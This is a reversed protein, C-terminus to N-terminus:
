STKSVWVSWVTTDVKRAIAYGEQGISISGPVGTVCNIMTDGGAIALTVSTSDRNNFHLEVGREHPVDANAAITWTAVGGSSRYIFSKEDDLVTTYSGNQINRFRKITRRGNHVDNLRGNFSDNLGTIYTSSYEPVIIECDTINDESGATLTYWPVLDGGNYNPGFKSWKAGQIRIRSTAGVNASLINAEVKWGEALDTGNTGGCSLCDSSCDEHYNAIYEVGTASQSRFGDSLNEWTNAAVLAGAGHDFVGGVTHANATNNVITLINCVETGRYKGFGVQGFGYGTGGAGTSDNSVVKCSWSGNICIAHDAFGEYEGGDIRCGRTFGVLWIGKIANTAQIMGGGAFLIQVHELAGPNNTRVNVVGAGYIGDLIPQNVNGDTPGGTSNGPMSLIIAGGAPIGPGALLQGLILMSFDSADITVTNCLWLGEPVVIMGRSYKVVNLARQFGLTIASVNGEVAGYRRIDLFPWKLTLDGEVLGASTEAPRIGGGFQLSNAALAATRAGTGGNGIELPADTTLALRAAAKSTADDLVTFKINDVANLWAASIVPGVKDVFNQLAM